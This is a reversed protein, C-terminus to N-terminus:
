GFKERPYLALMKWAFLGNVLMFPIAGRYLSRVNTFSQSVQHISKLTHLPYFLLTALWSPYMLDNETATFYLASGYPINFLLKPFIGYYSSILGTSAVADRL